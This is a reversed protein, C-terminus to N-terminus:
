HAVGRGDSIQAWLSGVEKFVAAKSLNGSIVNWGYSYIAFFTWNHRIHLRGHAKWRAIFPACIYTVGLDKFPHSLFRIKTKKFELKLRIFDAVFNRQTFVNLRLTTTYGNGWRVTWLYQRSFYGKLRFNLRLTVWGKFDCADRSREAMASSSTNWLPGM